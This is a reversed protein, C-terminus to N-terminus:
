SWSFLGDGGWPAPDICSTLTSRIAALKSSNSWYLNFNFQQGGFTSGIGIIGLVVGLAGMMLAKHISESTLSILMTTGLMMLSFYKPSRLKLVAEALPPASLLLGITSVTGGIFSGIAAMGLTTIPGAKAPWKIGNWAPSM